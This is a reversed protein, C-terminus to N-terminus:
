PVSTTQRRQSAAQPRAAPKREWDTAAWNAFAAALVVSGTVWNQCCKLSASNLRKTSLAKVCFVSRCTATARTFSARASAATASPKPRGVSPTPAPMERLRVPSPLTLLILALLKFAPKSPEQSISKNLRM